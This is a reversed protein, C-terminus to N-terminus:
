FLKEAPPRLGATRLYITAQGRHHVQHEFAKLMWGIRTVNFTGRTVVEFSRNMEFNKLAEVAYEYNLNVFYMVSDKTLATQTNELGRRNIVLPIKHGTSAEVLSVTGQAMHIMQQAFTRISDQPRFIYLNSPMANLFELTYEKSRQWDKLLQLKLTDAFQGKSSTLICMFLVSFFIYKM